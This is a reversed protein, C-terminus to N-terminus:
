SSRGGDEKMMIIKSDKQNIVLIKDFLELKMLAKYLEKKSIEVKFSKSIEEILDEEEISQKKKLLDLILNELPLIM